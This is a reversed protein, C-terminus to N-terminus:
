EDYVHAESESSTFEIQEVTDEQEDGVTGYKQENDLQELIDKRLEKFELYDINHSYYDDCIRRLQESYRKINVLM